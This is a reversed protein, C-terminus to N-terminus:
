DEYVELYFERGFKEIVQKPMFLKNVKDVRKFLRFLM